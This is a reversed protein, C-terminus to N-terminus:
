RVGARHWTEGDRRAPRARFAERLPVQGYTSGTPELIAAAIESGHAAMVAALGAEDNPDVLVVNGALNELIGPTPTGDFHNTVGFAMHDHWGHFHGRLRLLKARGTAARAVRLAMLTAETGSNTFRIMEAGPMMSKILAAWRNELLHNAGYHTGRALQEAVAAMVQPHAHGLILAGHGGAYDVYEHGDVDWKRAGAARAVAIPHPRVYRSDHTVGGPFHTRAEAYAAASGPTRAVFAAIIPSNTPPIANMPAEPAPPSPRLRRPRGTATWAGVIDLYPTFDAAPVSYETPRRFGRSRHGLLEHVAKGGCGLRLGNRAGSEAVRGDRRAGEVGAHAKRNGAAGHQSGGVGLIEAADGVPDGGAVQRQEAARRVRGVPQFLRPQAVGDGGARQDGGAPVQLM